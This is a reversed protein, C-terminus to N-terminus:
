LQLFIGFLFCLHFFGPLNGGSYFVINQFLLKNLSQEQPLWLDSMELCQYSGLCFRTWPYCCGTCLQWMGLGCTGSPCFIMKDWCGRKENNDPSFFGRSHPAKDQCHASCGFRSPSFHDSWARTCVRGACLRAGAGFLGFYGSGTCASLCFLESVGASFAM